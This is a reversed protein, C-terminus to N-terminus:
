SARPTSPLNQTEPRVGHHVWESTGDPQHEKKWIPVIQKLREIAYECAEFAERRHPTSLAVVVAIEGVELHGLRHVLVFEGIPWKQRIEMEIQNLMKLAMPEHAEYELSTTFIDGTLERVTGWFTVVAGCHRMRVKETLPSPDIAERVIQIM